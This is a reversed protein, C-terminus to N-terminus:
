SNILVKEHKFRWAGYSHNSFIKLAARSMFSYNIREFVDCDDLLDHCHPHYYILTTKRPNAQLDNLLNDLFGKFVVPDFPNYLYIVLNTDPYKYARIDQCVIKCKTELINKDFIKQINETAQNAISPVFEVGILNKFGIKMGKLLARGKGCGIDVYTAYDKDDSTIPWHLLNFLMTPTASYLEDIDYGTFDIKENLDSIKVLKSTEVNLKRDHLRDLQRHIKSIGVEFLGHMASIM